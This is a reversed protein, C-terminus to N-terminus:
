RAAVGAIVQPTYTIKRNLINYFELVTKAQEGPSLIDDSGVYVNIYLSGSPLACLTVGSKNDLAIASDLNRLVLSVPGRIDADSKNKIKVTQEFRGTSQIPSLGEVNINLQSTVDSLISSCNTSPIFLIAQGNRLVPVKYSWQLIRGTTQGNIDRIGVTAAGGFSSKYGPGADIDLYQILIGGTGEQLITQFILGKSGNLAYVNQWQVIFRRSGPLGFTQYHVAGAGRAAFTLDFWLPAISPLDGATAAGTLDQNAFDTPNCGVFSLLGNSSICVSSYEKGYFMFPFGLNVIAKDDDAGGLVAAGTSSIDDFGYPTIDTARYGYSDPGIDSARVAASTLLVLLVIWLSFHFRHVCIRSNNM